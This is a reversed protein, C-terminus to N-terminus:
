THEQDSDTEQASMLSAATLLLVVCTIRRMIEGRGPLFFRQVGSSAKLINEGVRVPRDTPLGSYELEQMRSSRKDIRLRVLIRRFCVPKVSISSKTTTPIIITRAASATGLNRREFIAALSAEATAESRVSSVALM